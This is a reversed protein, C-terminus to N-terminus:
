GVPQKTPKDSFRLSTFQLKCFVQMKSHAQPAAHRWSLALRAQLSLPVTGTPSTGQLSLQPRGRDWPVPHQGPPVSLFFTDETLFLVHFTCSILVGHWSLLSQGAMRAVVVAVGDSANNHHAIM